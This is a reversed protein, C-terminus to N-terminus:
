LTSGAHPDKLEIFVADPSTVSRTRSDLSSRPAASTASGSGHLADPTGDRTAEEAGSNTLLPLSRVTRRTRARVRPEEPCPDALAAPCAPCALLELFARSMLGRKIEERWGMMKMM